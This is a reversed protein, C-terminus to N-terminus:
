LIEVVKGYIQNRSIWGNMHGHNNGILYEKDNKVAHILHLYHHGRVKCLVIDKKKLTVEDTVPECIVPQRSKLIPTMSNGIGTVKCTEGGRLHNCTEQNEFGSYTFDRMYQISNSESVLQLSLLIRVLTTQWKDFCWHKGFDAYITAM